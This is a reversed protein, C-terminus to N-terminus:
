VTRVCPICQTNSVSSTVIVIADEVLVGIPDEVVLIDEWFMQESM